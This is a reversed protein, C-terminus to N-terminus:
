SLIVKRFVVFSCKVPLTPNFIRIGPHNCDSHFSSIAQSSPVTISLKMCVAFCFVGLYLGM